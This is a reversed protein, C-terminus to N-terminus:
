QITNTYYAYPNATNNPNPDPQAYKAPAWCYSYSSLGGRNIRVLWDVNTGTSYKGSFNYTYIYNGAYTMSGGDTWASTGNRRHYLKVESPLNYGYEDKFYATISAYNTSPTNWQVRSFSDVECGSNWQSTWRYQTENRYWQASSNAGGFHLHPASPYGSTGINAGKAYYGAGNWSKLHYFRCYCAPDDKVGNNNADIQLIVNYGTSDEWGYSLWGNWVAYVSTGYSVGIDVGQHPNTGIDQLPPAIDPRVGELNEIAGLSNSNDLVEVGNEM